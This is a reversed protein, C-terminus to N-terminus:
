SKLKPMKGTWSHLTHCIENKHIGRLRFIEGIFEEAVELVENAAHEGLSNYVTTDAMGNITIGPVEITEHTSSFHILKNRINKLNSFKQGIGSDFKIKEGFVLNPWDKLKRELPTPKDLDSFIRQKAHKYPEETILIRFYVNMFVEVGTVALIICLAADQTKHNDNEHSKVRYCLRRLAEFYSWVM